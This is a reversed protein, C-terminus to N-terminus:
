RVSTKFTFSEGWNGQLYETSWKIYRIHIPDDIGLSERLNQRVEPPVNRNAAFEAYPDGPAIALISFVVMSIAVVTILSSIVRRILYRGVRREKRDVQGVALSEDGADGGADRRAGRLVLTGDRACGPRAAITWRPRLGQAVSDRVM